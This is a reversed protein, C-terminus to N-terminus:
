YCCIFGHPILRLTKSVKWANSPLKGFNGGTMREPKFEEADDGFVAPDRQVTPLLVLM